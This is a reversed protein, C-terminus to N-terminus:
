KRKCPNGTTGIQLSRDANTNKQQRNQPTCQTSDASRNRHADYHRKKTLAEKITTPNVDAVRFVNGPNKTLILNLKGNENKKDSRMMALLEEDSITDSLATPLSAAHCLAELRDITLQSCLGMAASVHAACSMGIAVAEGHLMPNLAEIAHAFTHGYNLIARLSSERRDQNVITSKITCARAIANTLANPDRYLIKPMELELHKFFDDDSIIASKIIEAIGSRYERDPLTQLLTIDIITLDPDHFTGILNKIGSFNIGTKGGIAADAMALLTTPVYITPIGRMYCSGVFGGLDTTAGGGIAIVVSRRDLGIRHMEKWCREAEQLTKASEGTKVAIQAYPIEYLDALQEDIIAVASSYDQCKERLASKYDRFLIPLQTNIKM